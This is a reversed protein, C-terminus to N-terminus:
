GQQGVAALSGTSHVPETQASREELLSEYLAVTDKAEMSMTRMAPIGQTLQNLFDPNLALKALADAWAKVDTPPLLLGNVKWFLWRDLM